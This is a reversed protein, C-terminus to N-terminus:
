VHARGIRMPQPCDRPYICTSGLFLLKKVKHRYAAGIVNVEIALNIYIFDARYVFNAQIGGVHAAALFVYEPKEEAFFKEVAAADTLDLEKHTRGVLNTYGKSKLNNWIASGVLGRHGAVYIKADKNEPLSM